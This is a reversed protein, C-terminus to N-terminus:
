KIIIRHQETYFGDNVELMYLGPELQLIQQHEVPKAVVLKGQMDRINLTSNQSLDQTNLRLMKDKLPNGAIRNVGELKYFIAKIGHMETTGDIDVATLRYYNFGLAPQQHTFSYHAGGENQGKAAIQTLPSFDKGNTSHELIFHSFNLETLTSWNVDANLTNLKAEFSLMEVPLVIVGGSGIASNLGPYDAAFDAADGFSVTYGGYTDGNNIITTGNLVPANWLYADGSGSVVLGTFSNTYLNTSGKVAIVGDNVVNLTGGTRSLTLDGDVILFGGSHVTLTRTLGMTNSMILSSANMFLTDGSLINLSSNVSVISNDSQITNNISIIRNVPNTGPSSSTWGANNQWEYVGSAKSVYATQGNVLIPGVGLLVLPAILQIFKRM